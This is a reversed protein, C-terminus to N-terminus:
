LASRALMAQRHGGTETAGLGRRTQMKAAASRTVHLPPRGSAARFCLPGGNVWRSVYRRPLAAGRCSSCRALCSSRPLTRDLRLGGAFERRERGFDGPRRQGDRFCPRDSAFKYPPDNEITVQQGLRESLWQGVIRTVTDAGGGPPFGVIWRVPRTPYTQAWAIRSVAPMTAAGAALHLFHRRPLKM